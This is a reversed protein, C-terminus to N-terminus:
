PNPGINVHRIHYVVYPPAIEIVNINTDQLQMRLSATFSHLAAKSACYNLVHPVPLIALGSTVAYISAPHGEKVM